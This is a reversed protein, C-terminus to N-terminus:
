QPDLVKATSAAKAPERVEYRAGPTLRLQGDTVVREGVALGQEVVLERGALSITQVKRVEVTQDPRAVYMFNGDPGSQLAESPVVLADKLNRLVMSVEVFQGPTLKEDGNDIRAKMIITGTTSDVANDVFSLTGTLKPRQAGPVAVSVSMPGGARASDIQGLMREPVSFTVYIPRVQNIVVLPTDNAKVSAGPFVLVAGAVGEMPSVVTTYSLQVQALDRAALDAKVIAETSDVAARYTELQSASVFGKAVLDSYRAFDSRAKELQARDRALNAEVQALQAQLARSDFTVMKQGKGIHQGAQYHVATIQGDIRSRLTVTSWAEARGVLNLTLPVEKVQVSAVTVPVGRAAPAAKPKVNAESRHQLFLAGGGAAALLVLVALIRSGTTM